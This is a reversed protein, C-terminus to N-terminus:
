EYKKNANFTKSIKIRSYSGDKPNKRLVCAKCDGANAVYIKNNHIVTVLACSGVYASAPFGKDFASKTVVYWDDEIRNFAKNIANIVDQDTTATKLEEDLFHHLNKMSYESVQWGGHGDFVAVYYGNFGKM